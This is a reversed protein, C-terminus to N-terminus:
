LSYLQRQQVEDTLSRARCWYWTACVLRGLLAPFVLNSHIPPKSNLEPEPSSHSEVDSYISEKGEEKITDM